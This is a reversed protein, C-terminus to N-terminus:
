TTRPAGSGSDPPSEPPAPSPTGPGSSRPASSQSPPAAAAQDGATGATPAPTAPEASPTPAPPTVPEEEEAEDLYVEELDTADVERRLLYYIITSGSYYFSVLFAWVTAVVLAVWFWILWAGIIDAHERGFALWGPMLSEFSPPTWLVDLKSMDPGAGERAAIRTGWEVPVRTLVLTLLAFFRVFLFCFAGYVSAVLFYLLARWPKSYVYSFSRSIADFSDSGEVAVTPWMLSGGAVAGVAVLAMVFGGLLALFFLIGGLIEGVYPISLFLGGVFLAAGMFAILGAPILPAAFFGLFKRWAFSVAQKLPIKEDRAAHLAAIRCIAGGVLSWIALCIVFFFIAYLWHRAILWQAGLAILYLTPLLGPGAADPVELSQQRLPRPGEATRGTGLFNFAAAAEVAQRIGNRKHRLLSCFIGRPQLRHVEELAQRHPTLVQERAHQKVVALDAQAAPPAAGPAVKQVIALVAARDAAQEIERLVGEYHSRIDDPLRRLRDWYEQETDVAAGANEVRGVVRGAALIGMVVSRGHRVQDERWRDLDAGAIYASIEGPLASQGAAQWIRDMVFGVVVTAVVGVLALGVKSPHVALRFTRFIHVFGFVETWNIRRLETPQEAM